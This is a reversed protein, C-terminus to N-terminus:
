EEGMAKESASAYEEVVEMEDRPIDQASSTARRAALNQSAAEVHPFTVEM